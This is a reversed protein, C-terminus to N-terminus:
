FLKSVLKNFGKKKGKVTMLLALVAVMLAAVAVLTTGSVWVAGSGAIDNQMLMYQQSVMPVLSLGLPMRDAILGVVFGLPVILMIYWHSKLTGSSVKGILYVLGLGVLAFLVATVLGLVALTVYSIILVAAGVILSIALLIPNAMVEALFVLGWEKGSM